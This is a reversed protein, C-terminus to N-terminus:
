VWSERHRDTISIDNCFVVLGCCVHNLYEVGTYMGSLCDREFEFAAPDNFYDSDDTRHVLGTLSTEEVHAM